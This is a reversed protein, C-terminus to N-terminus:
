RHRRRATHPHQHTRAERRHERLRGDIAAAVLLRWATGFLERAGPVPDPGCAPELLAAWLARAQDEDKEHAAVMFRGVFAHAANEPANPDVPAGGRVVVPMFGDAGPPLKLGLVAVSALLGAAYFAVGVGLELARGLARDVGQVDGRAAAKVADDLVPVAAAYLRKQEALEDAGM